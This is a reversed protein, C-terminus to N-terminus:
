SLRTPKDPKEDPLAGLSSVLDSYLHAFKVAELNMDISKAYLGVQWILAGALDTLAEGESIAKSLVSMKETFMDWQASTEDLVQKVPKRRGLYGLIEGIQKDEQYEEESRDMQQKCSEMQKQVENLEKENLLIGYEVESVVDILDCVLNQYQSFRLLFAASTMEETSLNEFNSEKLREVLAQSEPTKLISMEKLQGVIEQIRKLNQIKKNEM